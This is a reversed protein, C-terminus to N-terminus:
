VVQIVHWDSGLLPAQGNGEQLSSKLDAVM